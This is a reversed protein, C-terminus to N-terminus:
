GQRFMKNKGDRENRFEDYGKDNVGINVVESTLKM